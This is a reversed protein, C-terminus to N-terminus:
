PMYSMVDQLFSLSTEYHWKKQKSHRQRCLYPMLCSLWVAFRVLGMHRKNKQLDSIKLNLRTTVKPLIEQHNYECCFLLFQVFWDKTTSHRNFLLPWWHRLVNIRPRILFNYSYNVVYSCAYFYLQDETSWVREEWCLWRKEWHCHEM